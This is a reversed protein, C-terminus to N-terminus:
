GTNGLQTCAAPAAAGASVSGVTDPFRRSTYGIQCPQALKPM